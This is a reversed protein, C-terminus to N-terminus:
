LSAFTYRVVGLNRTKQRNRTRAIRASSCVRRRQATKGGILKDAMTGGEAVSARENEAPKARTERKRASGEVDVVRTETPTQEEDAPTRADRTRTRACDVVVAPRDTPTKREREEERCRTQHHRDAGGGVDVVDVQTTSRTQADRTPPQHDGGGDVM